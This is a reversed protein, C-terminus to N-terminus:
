WTPAPFQVQTKQSLLKVASGHRWGMSETILIATATVSVYLM